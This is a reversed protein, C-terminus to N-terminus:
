RTGRHERRSVFYKRPSCAGTDVSTQRVCGGDGARVGSLMETGRDLAASYLACVEWLPRVGGVV